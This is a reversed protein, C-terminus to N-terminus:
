AGPSIGGAAFSLEYHTAGQPSRLLDISLDHIWITKQEIITVSFSNQLVSDLSYDERFPFDKLLPPTSVLPLVRKGKEGPAKLVKSHIEGTLKGSFYSETYDKGLGRIINRIEKSLQSSYGFENMNERLRAFCAKTEIMKKTRNGNRRVVWKGTPSHFYMSFGDLNGKIKHIGKQEAM